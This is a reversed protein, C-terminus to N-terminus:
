LYGINTSQFRNKLCKKHLQFTLYTLASAIVSSDQQDLTQFTILSELTSQLPHTLSPASEISGDAQQQTALWAYGQSIDAASSVSMGILLFLFISKKILSVYHRSAMDTPQRTM